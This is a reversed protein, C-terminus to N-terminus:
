LTSFILCAVTSAALSGFSSDIIQLLQPWLIATGSAKMGLPGEGESSVAQAGFRPQQPLAGQGAQVHMFHLLLM